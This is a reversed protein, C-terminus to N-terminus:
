ITLTQEKQLLFGKEFAKGAILLIIAIYLYKSSNMLLNIFSLYVHDTIIHSWAISMVYHFVINLLYMATLVYAMFYIQKYNSASFPKGRSISLLIKLPIFIFSYFVILIFLIILGNVILRTTLFTDKTVPILVSGQKPGVNSTPTAFRYNVETKVDRAVRRMKEEGNIEILASDYAPHNMYYKGNEVTFRCDWKLYYHPLLIYYKIKDAPTFYEFCSDCEIINRYGIFDAIAGSGRGEKMTTQIEMRKKISDEIQRFEDYTMVQQRFDDKNLTKSSLSIVGNVEPAFRRFPKYTVGFFGPTAIVIAILILGLLLTNNFM